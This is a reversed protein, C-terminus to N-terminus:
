QPVRANGLFSREASALEADLGADSPWGCSVLIRPGLPPPPVPVDLTPVFFHAFGLKRAAEERSARRIVVAHWKTLGFRFVRGEPSRYSCVRGGEAAYEGMLDKAREAAVYDDDTATVVAVPGDCPPDGVFLHVGGRMAFMAQQMDHPSELLPSVRHAVSARTLLRSAQALEIWNPFEMGLMALNRRAADEAVAPIENVSSIRVFKTRDDNPPHKM